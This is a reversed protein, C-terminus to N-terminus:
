EFEELADEEDHWRAEREYGEAIKRLMAATRLWKSKVLDSLGRFKKALAREQDGGKSRVHAGRRNYLSTSLGRELEESKLEEILARVTECPWTGDVDEPAFALVHGIRLDGIACRNCERALHRAEEVWKFLAVRDVRGKSFVIDGEARETILEQEVTGPVKKWYELLRYAQTARARDEDSVERSEENDARFVLKLTDVFLKPESSLATQLARLGRKSHTLAPMWIWELGALVSSDVGRNDLTELLSEVHNSVTTMSPPYWEEGPNHRPTDNLLGVILETSMLISESADRRTTRICMGALDLAQYPRGAQLLRRIAREADRELKELYHISARSWYEKETEDGWGEVLDWTHGDAPLGLALNTYRRSDWVIGKVLIVRDIWTDGDRRYSAHIYGWAMRLRAPIHDRRAVDDLAQALFEAEVNGDFQIRSLAIGVEDPREVKEALSVLGTLKQDEYIKRVAQYRAEQVGAIHQEYDLNRDRSLEPWSVFLWKHQEVPDRPQFKAYLEDFPHLDAEKLAWDAEPFERHHSLIKRLAETVFGRSQEDLNDPEVAKVSALLNDALKHYPRLGAYTRVLDAWRVGSNGAWKMMRALLEEVFSWYERDRSKSEDYPKWPRWQPDATPSGVTTEDPLLSVAFSWAVDPNQAYLLDIANLREPLDADTQLYWPLFIGTLSNEPRNGLKGGPDSAALKGLLLTIRSLYDKSWALRELAWLVYTHPNSGFMGGEQFIAKVFESDHLANELSLLFSDPSAEALDPLWKAVSLWTVTRSDAERNLLDRVFADAIAQGDVSTLRDRNLALQVISGVIGGLLATSYPREKGYLGAAWQDEAALELRPDPTGLLQKALEIFRQVHAKEIFPSLRTWAYDWALWDWFAGRRVLPGTPHVWKTIIREIEAYPCGALSEVARRDNENETSWQGVLLIPILEWGTGHAMWAPRSHYEESAMWFIAALKGKSERTIKQARQRLFGLAVLAEECAQRRITPLKISDNSQRSSVSSAAEPSLIRTLSSHLSFAKRHVEPTLTVIIHPMQLSSLYDLAEPTSVFLVRPILSDRQNDPLTVIAAWIFGVAEEISDGEITIRRSDSCLWVQLENLSEDRGGIILQPSIQLGYRSDYEELKLEELDRLGDVPIGMQRALWRAVGPQLDLWTDLDVVDIVRVERWVKEREKDKIWKDKGRFHHPSVFVFAMSKRDTIEPIESRRRYDHEAKSGPEGTGMEWVSRGMPVYPHSATTEVMGDYGPLSIQDGVPVRISVLSESTLTAIILKRMLHPLLEQADRKEPVFWRDIQTADVIQRM